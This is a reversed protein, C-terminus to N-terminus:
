STSNQHPTAFREETRPTTPDGPSAFNAAGAMRATLRAPIKASLKGCAPIDQTLKGCFFIYERVRRLYAKRTRISYDRM